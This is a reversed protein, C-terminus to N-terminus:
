NNSKPPDNITIVGAAELRSLASLIVRIEGAQWASYQRPTMGLARAQEGKKAALKSCASILRSHLDM